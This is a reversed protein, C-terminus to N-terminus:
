RLISKEAIQTYFDKLSLDTNIGELGLAKWVEPAVASLWDPKVQYAEPKRGMALSMLLFAMDLTNGKAGTVASDFLLINEGSAEKDWLFYTDVFFAFKQESDSSQIGPKFIITLGSRPDLKVPPQSEGSKLSPLYFLCEWTPDAKGSKLYEYVTKKDLGNARAVNQSLAWYVAEKFQEPGKVPDKFWDGMTKRDAWRPDQSEISVVFPKVVEKTATPEPTPTPLPSGELISDAKLDVYALIQGAKDKYVITNAQRNWEPSAPNAPNTDFPYHEPYWQIAGGGKPLAPTAPVDIWVGVSQLKGQEDKAQVIVAGKSEWAPVAERAIEVNWLPLDKGLVNPDAVRYPYNQYFAIAKQTQDELATTTAGRDEPKVLDLGGINPVLTIRLEPVPTSTATAEPTKTATMTATPRPTETPTSTPTATETPFPTIIRSPTGRDPEVIATPSSVATGCAAAVLGLTGSAFLVAEKGSLHPFWQSLEELALGTKLLDTQFLRRAEGPWQDLENGSHPAEATNMNQSM